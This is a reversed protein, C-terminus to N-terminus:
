KDQMAPTTCTWRSELLRGKDRRKRSAFDVTESTKKTVGSETTGSKVRAERETNNKWGKAQPDQPLSKWQSHWRRVCLVWVRLFRVPRFWSWGSDTVTSTSHISTTSTHPTTQSAVGTCRLRQRRASAACFSSWWSAGQFSAEVKLNKPQTPQSSFPGDALGQSRRRGPFPVLVKEHAQGEGTHGAVDRHTQPTHRTRTQTGKEHTSVCHACQRVQPELPSLTCKGLM